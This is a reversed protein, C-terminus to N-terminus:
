FKGLLSPRKSLLSVRCFKKAGVKAGVIKPAVPASEHQPADDGGGANWLTGGAWELNLNRKVNGGSLRLITLPIDPLIRRPKGVVAKFQTLTTVAHGSSTAFTANQDRVPSQTIDSVM